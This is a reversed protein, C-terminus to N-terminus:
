KNIIESTLKEIETRFPMSDINDIDEDFEKDLNAIYENVEQKIKFDDELNLIEEHLMDLTGTEAYVNQYNETKSHLTELRFKHKKLLKLKEEDRKIQNIRKETDKYQKLINEYEKILTECFTIKTESLKIQERYDKILSDTKEILQKSVSLNNEHFKISEYEALEEYWFATPVDFIEFIIDKAWKKVKDINEIEIDRDSICKELADEVQSKFIIKQEQAFDIQSSKKSFMNKFFNIM